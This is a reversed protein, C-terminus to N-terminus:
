SADWRIFWFVWQPPPKIFALLLTVPFLAFYFSEVTAMPPLLMTMAIVAFIAGSAGMMTGSRFVWAFLGLAISSGLYTLLYWVNGIRRNLASGFVLLTLMNFSLHGIDAHGFAYTVIGFPSSGRGVSPHWGLCFIVVNLAVLLSNAAPIAQFHRGDRVKIPLPFFMTQGIM